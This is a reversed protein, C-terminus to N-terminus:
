IEVFHGDILRVVRDCDALASERHTVILVTRGQMLESLSALLDAETVSDLASTPEDLILVPADRLYARALGVRQREGGSLAHGREGVTTQLGDPFRALAAGLRARNAAHQIEAETAGPRGAAINDAITGSFLVTEQFVVAIRSRIEGPERDRLDVSDFLIRGSDPDQFRLLLHLLTSKGSGTEGVIGIREGPLVRLTAHDLIPRRSDYGFTVDEISWAGACRAPVTPVPPVPVEPDTDLLLVARELGALQTQLSAWKKGVTRLPAYIQNLYHLGLLAQGITLSGRQAAQVAVALAAATGAACLLQVMSGLAADLGAVRMRAAVARRGSTRYAEVEVTERGYAKVVPLAALAEHIRGMARSELERAERSRAKLTPRLLRASLLLPPAVAVAVIGLGTDLRFLATTMALLTVVATFVPLAGDILTWEVTQADTQIRYVTDSVGKDIHHRVALRLAADFLRVRLDLILRQGLSTSVLAALVSQIQAAAAIALGGAALWALRGGSEHVPFAALWAPAPKGQLIVDVATQLPIPALLALGAGATEILALAALPFWAGKALAIVTERGTSRQPATKSPRSDSPPDPM